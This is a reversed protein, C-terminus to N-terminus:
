IFKKDPDLYDLIPNAYEKESATFIIVRFLTNAYELCEKVGPRINIGAKIPFPEGKFALDIVM